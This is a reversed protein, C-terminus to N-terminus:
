DFTIPELTGKGIEFRQIWKRKRLTQYYIIKSNKPMYVVYIPDDKHNDIIKSAIKTTPDFIKMESRGVVIWIDNDPTPAVLYLTDVSKVFQKGINTVKYKENCSFIKIAGGENITTFVIGNHKTPAIRAVRSGQELKTSDIVEGSKADLAYIAQGGKLRRVIYLTKHDLSVCSMLFEIFNSNPLDYLKSQKASKIKYSYIAGDREFLVENNSLSVVETMQRANSKMDAVNIDTIKNTSINKLRLRYKSITDNLDYVLMSDNPSVYFKMIVNAREILPNQAFIITNTFMCCALLLTTTKKNKM